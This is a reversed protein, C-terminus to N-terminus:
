PGRAPHSRWTKSSRDPLVRDDLCGIRRTDSGGPNAELRARARGPMGMRKSLCKKHRRADTTHLGRAARYAFDTGAVRDPNRRTFFVPVSRGSLVREFMNGHLFGLPALVDGPQLRHRVRLVRSFGSGPGTMLPAHDCSYAMAGPTTGERHRFTTDGGVDPLYKMVTTRIPAGSAAHTISNQPAGAWACCALMDNKTVLAPGPLPASRPPSVPASRWQWSSAADAPAPAFVQCAYRDVCPAPATFARSRMPLPGQTFTFPTVTAILTSSRCLALLLSLLSFLRESFPSTILPIPSLGLRWSTRVPEVGSPFAKGASLSM